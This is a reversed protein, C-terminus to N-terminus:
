AERLEHVLAKFVRGRHEFSQFQDFSACAPALLVIDGPMANARAFRVANELTIATEILVGGKIQKAILPAAAGILIAGRAKKRLPEALPEYDSKKDKGGLIVWLRGDFAELAKLTADVNTAKSDNFYLVGNVRRVYELRHEVGKFSMVAERVRAPEAGALLAALSAAMVNEVNHMGRLPIESAEMLVGGEYRLRGADLWMGPSVDHSLSFWVAQPADEIKEHSQAAYSVCYPDDANLVSYGDKTQTAFLRGKAAVYNEMSGHRDLHDPTINLCMAIHARFNNISELQYSSLELVNWQEVKSTSVMACVPTGINGGVQSSVGASKLIHGLLATTTTKGNSGTIGINRGKLYHSAFEVEGEVPVPLGPPIVSPPVGPSLLVRDFRLNFVAPSQVHYEVGQLKEQIDQPLDALPKSDVAIPIAGQERLLEVSAVGSKAMGIVLVKKGQINM